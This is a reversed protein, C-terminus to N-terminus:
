LTLFSKIVKLGELGSKEPHFQTGYINGRRVAASIRFGVYDCDALRDSENAPQATFTHVFYVRTEPAIDSLITDNWDASAPKSLPSWGIHPRKRVEDTATRKDIEVIKGPVLGLGQHEGFEESVDFLMQMGVCIGLFPRETRAYELVADRFGRQSLAQACDGFAGVGPVVLRDANAVLSPDRIVEVEAGSTEFARTVSLLNGIDYDVVSVKM